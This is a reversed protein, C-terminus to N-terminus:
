SMIKRYFKLAADKDGQQEMISGLESYAIATDQSNKLYQEFYYKAKGILTQRQCIRGLALLLAEDQPHQKLWHEAIKLQEWPKPSTLLGYRTVLKSQWKKDLAKLLFKEAQKINHNKELFRIYPDVFDADYHLNRPSKRWFHKIKKENNTTLCALWLEIYVKKELDILEEKALIKYRFLIPLLNQLNRWDQQHVYILQLKQLLLKHHPYTHRLFCILALAEEYQQNQLFLHLRALAITLATKTNSGYVKQATNLYHDRKQQLQQKNAAYAAALYANLTTNQKKQLSIAQAFRDEAKIWDNELLRHLGKAFYRQAKAARYYKFYKAITQPLHYINSGSRLLAYILLFGCLLFFIGIWLTMEIVTNSYAILVYGSHLSIALGILIAALLLLFYTILLKM